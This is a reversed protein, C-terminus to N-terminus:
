TPVGGEGGGGSFPFAVTLWQWSAGNDSDQWTIDDQSHVMDRPPMTVERRWM